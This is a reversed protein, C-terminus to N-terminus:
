ILELAVKGRISLLNADYVINEAILPKNSSFIRSLENIHIYKEVNNIPLDFRNKLVFLESTIPNKVVFINSQNMLTRDEIPISNVLITKLENDM